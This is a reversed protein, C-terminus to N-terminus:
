ELSSLFTSDNVLPAIIEAEPWETKPYFQETLKNWGNEYCATIEPLNNNMIAQNFQIIFQLSHSKM